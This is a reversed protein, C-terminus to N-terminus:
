APSTTSTANSAGPRTFIQWWEAKPDLLMSLDALDLPTSTTTLAAAESGTRADSRARDRASTHAIGVASGRRWALHEGDVALAYQDVSEVVTEVKRREFDFAYLTRPPM